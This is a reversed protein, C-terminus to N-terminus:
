FLSEFSVDGLERVAPVAQLGHIYDVWKPNASSKKPSSSSSATTERYFSNSTHKFQALIQALPKTNTVEAVVPSSATLKEDGSDENRKEEIPDTESACDQKREENSVESSPTCGEFVSDMRSRSSPTTPPSADISPARRLEAPTDFIFIASWSEDRMLAFTCDLSEQLADELVPSELLDWTEDLISDPTSSGDGTADLEDDEQQNHGDYIDDEFPVLYRLLSRPRRSRSSRRTSQQSLRGYLVFQRIEYLAEDVMERTMRLSSPDAVNWDGVVHDVAREITTILHRIGRDLFYDYTKMLVRRQSSHFSTPDNQRGQQQREQEWLKGAILHVQVTLVLYLITHSIGTSVLRTFSNVKIVDWLERERLKSDKGNADTVGAVTTPSSSPSSASSLKGRLTKLEKTEKTSNTYDEIMRRIIPLFSEYVKQTEERCMAVRRRQEKWQQQKNMRRTIFSTPNGFNQTFGGGEPNNGTNPNSGFLLDSVSATITNALSPPTPQQQTDDDDDDDEVSFHQQNWVWDALKYSGYAIVATTVVAGVSPIASRGRRSRQRQQHQSMGHCWNTAKPYAALQERNNIQFISHM